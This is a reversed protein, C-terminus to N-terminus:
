EATKAFIMQAVRAKTDTNFSSVVIWTGKKLDTVTKTAPPEMKRAKAFEAESDTKDSKANMRLERMEERMKDREEKTPELVIRTFPTALIDIDKGDANTVKIKGSDNDISKIKGIILSSDTNAAWMGNMMHPMKRERFDPAPFDAKGKDDSKKEQAFAVGSLLAAMTFAAVTKTTKTM